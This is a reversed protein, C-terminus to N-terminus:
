IRQRILKRMVYGPQLILAGCLKIFFYILRKSAFEFGADRYLYKAYLKRLKNIKTPIPLSNQVGIFDDWSIEDAGSRRLRMCERCWEFKKRSFIFKKSIESSSSVRYKMLIEQQVIVWYGLDNFRNWLDIDEAPFFQGRYGGVQLFKDKYYMAGPHLIGIPENESYYEKNRSINVLDSYTKGIITGTDTIYKALCSVVAAEKHSTLFDYQKGLRDQEMIDDADMRAIINSKALSITENLSNSFGFDDHDFLVVRKDNNEFRRIIEKTKDTSGNNSVILEFNRFDQVLVSEIAESIFQEGNYVSMVVSIIPLSM